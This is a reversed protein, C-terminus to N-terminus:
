FYIAGAFENIVKRRARCDIEFKLSRASLIVTLCAATSRACLLQEQDLVAILKLNLFLARASLFMTLCAGISRTCLLWSPTPRCKIELKLSCACLILNTM